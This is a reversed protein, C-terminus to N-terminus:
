FLKLKATVSEWHAIRSETADPDRMAVAHVMMNLAATLGTTSELTLGNRTRVHIRHDTYKQAWPCLDDTFVVLDRNEQQCNGALIEAERAYPVTDIIVLCEKSKKRKSRHELWETLMGDHPSIFRVEDRVLSLRRGTDEATGRVTQFGTIFVTDASFIVDILDDWSQGQCQEALGMLAKIELDIFEYFPSEVMSSPQQDPQSPQTALEEKLASKLGAMGKYGLRHLLRGVTVETVGAKRALSSGTEFSLDGLHVLM